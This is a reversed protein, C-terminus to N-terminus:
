EGTSPNARGRRRRRRRESSAGIPLTWTQTRQSKEASDDLFVYRGGRLDELRGATVKWPFQWRKFDELAYVFLQEQVGSPLSIDMYAAILGDARAVGPVSRVRQVYSEPFPHPFDVNPVARSTVWLDADSHDITLSANSLIGFLLGVQVVVLTVAFAVGAVTTLLRVKDHLLMRLGLDVV